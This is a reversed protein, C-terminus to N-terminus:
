RAPVGTRAVRVLLDIESQVLRALDYDRAILDRGHRGLTSALTEDTLVRELAAALGAPDHPDFLLGADADKVLARNGACDSAVCPVGAAMAEILAKPHGETFSPLVFADAGELWRPILQHDVVGPFEAPVGAARAEAELRDRLPGAGIMVLRSPVRARLAAAAQVLASLNKEESLRGIYLIAGRNVRRAAPAFLGLDVGNPILHIRDAPVLTRVYARLEETTVIVGAALRLGVRELARMAIRSASTRALRAYWFGYTTVFPTGWWLRALLAPVIGTLQFVRNVACRRFERRHRVPMELARLLRSRRRVPSLLGIRDALERDDTYDALSEPLYSFYWVRLFRRAYPKLYGEILRSAQGTRRLEGIGGGLAPLLGLEM